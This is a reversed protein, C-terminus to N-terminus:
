STAELIASGFCLLIQWSFCAYTYMFSAPTKLRKGGEAYFITNIGFKDRSVIRRFNPRIFDTSLPLSTAAIVVKGCHLRSFLIHDTGILMVAPIINGNPQVKIGPYSIVHGTFHPIVNSMWERVEVNCAIEDWLKYRIHNSTIHFNYQYTLGELASWTHTRSKPFKILVTGSSAM